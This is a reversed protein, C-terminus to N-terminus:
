ETTLNDDFFEQLIYYPKRSLLNKINKRFSKIDVNPNKVEIPLHNYMKVGNYIFSDKILSSSPLLLKLNNRTSERTSYHSSSIEFKLIHKRVLCITELIFLAVVTLIKMDIFLQRCPHRPGVKCINRIARKQIKLVSDLLNLSCVGWFPIGYRLHPEILAYYATKATTEGLERAIIRVAYCGASIKQKLQKIHTQFKLRKDIDLGLFRTFDKNEIINNGLAVNQLTCRFSVINTKSINLVLLNSDCWSKVINIDRSIKENLNEVTKSKWLITTDDAFLTLEGSINLNFIDNVYLLFLIPGLVSGQPVGSNIENTRSIENTKVMQSRGTLYSEFWSFTLGRCGYHNLKRLLIGIDVCDFAKTLDCFAAAAINGDNLNSYLEYLFSFIADHTNKRRQFGFQNAHIISHASLYENLRKKVLTEIIKALTPILSIPRFNSPDDLKGGKHLPIVVSMKLFSPFSGDHFSMNVLSVLTNLAVGPLNDFIKMSIDDFGVAKKNKIEKLVECLEDINTDYLILYNDNVFDRLHILPDYPIITDENLKKAISCYFDNMENASLPIESNILKRPKDRLDNIISWTEKMKNNASNIRNKYHNEKAAKLVTRYIKRYKHFHEHFCSNDTFKRIYHLSQMNRSSIKIGQTIWPKKQKIKIKQVPFSRNFVEVLQNYFALFPDNLLMINGWDLEICNLHFRNYNKSSYLRGYKYKKKQFDDLPMTFEIANHDSLGSPIVSCLVRDADFNSCVYDICTSSFQSERTTSDVHMILNFSNLISLLYQTNSSDSNMYDINFDGCLLINSKIPLDNLIFEVNELFLNVDSSPSRYLCLVFLNIKKFCCVSCEFDREALLNDYKTIKEPNYENFFAEAVLIMTGGYGASRCFKSCIRYNELHCPEDEVLWHETLLVINPFKRDELLM